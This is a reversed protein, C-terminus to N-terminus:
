KPAAVSGTSRTAAPRSVGAAEEHEGELWALLKGGTRDIIHESAYDQGSADVGQPTESMHSAGPTPIDSLTNIERKFSDPRFDAPDTFASGTFGTMNVTSQPPAPSGAAPMSSITSMSRRASGSASPSGSQAASGTCGRVMGAQQFAAHLRAAVRAPTHSPSHRMLTRPDIHTVAPFLTENFDGVIGHMTDAATVVRWEARFQGNPLKGSDRPYGIPQYSENLSVLRPTEVTKTPQATLWHASAAAPVAEMTSAERTRCQQIGAPFRARAVVAVRSRVSNFMESNSNHPLTTFSNCSSNTRAQKRDTHTQCTCPVNQCKSGSTGTRIASYNLVCVYMGYMCSVIVLCLLRTASHIAGNTTLTNHINAFM